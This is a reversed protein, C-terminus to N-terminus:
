DLRIDIGGQTHEQPWRPQYVEWSASGKILGHRVLSESGAYRRSHSSLLSRDWASSSVASDLRRYSIAGGFHEGRSIAEEFRRKMDGVFKYHLLAGSVDAVPLHTTSHNCEIYRGDPAMRVLPSKQMSLALGTLRQRIGGQVMVYPPLESPITVYDVDFYCSTAYPNAGSDADLREPYMDLELAPVLRYGNDDCYSLLDRLTRTGDYDPFVFGEDIDVHFCWHDVGFRQMLHNVWLVGFGSKAFSEHNSFISVDTEESLRQLSGDNSGNDIVFFHDVGLARYHALFWDIYDVANYQTVFLLVAGPTEDYKLVLTKPYSSPANVCLHRTDRIYKTWGQRAELDRGHIADFYMAFPRLLASGALGQPLARYHEIARRQEGVAILCRLYIQWYNLHTWALETFPELKALCNRLAAASCNYYYTHFGYAVAPGHHSIGCDLCAQLAENIQAPERAYVYLNFYLQAQLFLGASLPRLECLIERAHEIRNNDVHWRCLIALAESSKRSDPPIAAVLEAYDDDRAALRAHNTARDYLSWHTPDKRIRDCFYDILENTRGPLELLDAVAEVFARRDFTVASVLTSEPIQALERAKEFNGNFVECRLNLSRIHLNNPYEEVLRAVFAATKTIHCQDMMEWATTFVINAPHYGKAKGLPTDFLAVAHAALGTKAHLIASIQRFLENDPSRPMESLIRQVETCRGNSALVLALRLKADPSADIECARRAFREAWMRESAQRAIDAAQGLSRSDTEAAIVANLDIGDLVLGPFGRRTARQLVASLEGPKGGTGIM